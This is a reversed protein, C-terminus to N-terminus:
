EYIWWTNYHGEQSRQRLDLDFTNNLIETRSRSEVTKEVDSITNTKQRIPAELITVGTSTKTCLRETRPTITRLLRHPSYLDRYPFSMNSLSTDVFSYPVCFPTYQILTYSFPVSEFVLRKQNLKTGYLSQLLARLTTGVSDILRVGHTPSRGGEYVWEVM